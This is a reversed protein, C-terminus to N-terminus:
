NYFLCKRHWYCYSENQNNSESKNQNIAFIINDAAHHGDIFALM